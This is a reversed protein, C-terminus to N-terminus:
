ILSKDHYVRKYLFNIIRPDINYAADILALLVTGTDIEATLEEIAKKNHLNANILMHDYHKSRELFDTPTILNPNNRISNRVDEIECATHYFSELKAAVKIVDMM